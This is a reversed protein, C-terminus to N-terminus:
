GAISGPTFQSTPLRLGNARGVCVSNQRRDGTATNERTWVAQPLGRGWGSDALPTIQPLEKAMYLGVFRIAPTDRCDSLVLRLKSGRVPSLPLVRKRGITTGRAATSWNSGDWVDVTFGAVRQGIEIYEELVINNFELM